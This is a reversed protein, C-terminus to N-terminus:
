AGSISANASLNPHPMKSSKQKEELYPSLVDRMTLMLISADNETKDSENLSDIANLIAEIKAALVKSKVLDNIKCNSFYGESRGNEIATAFWASMAMDCTPLKPNKVAALAFNVGWLRADTCLHLDKHQSPYM